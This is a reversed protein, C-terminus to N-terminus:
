LSSTPFPSSSLLITHVKESEIPFSFTLNEDDYGIFTIIIAQDGNPINKLTALGNVDTSVGNTTGRLIISAGILVENNQSDLVQATFTNQANTITAIAVLLLTIIKNKMM